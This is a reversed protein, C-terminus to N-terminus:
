KGPPFLDPIAVGDAAAKRCLLRTRARLAEIELSMRQLEREIREM